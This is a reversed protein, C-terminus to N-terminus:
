IMPEMAVAPHEAKTIFELVQEETQAVTEDAIRDVFGELGEAKALRELRERVEEKLRKPMWVIRRFGGDGSIYKRSSVYHKSHGVFGPTQNGGGVSGALTSFKMGCPTMDPFDRDVIMIGNTMPLMASIAEFCGCSTMPDIMMSYASFRDLKRNSKEHVFANVNEWQGLREDVAAGKRIPQNPGAPKIEFAARGDLWNYAGCLGSREPTIV